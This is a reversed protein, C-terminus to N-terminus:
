KLLTKPHLSDLANIYDKVGIWHLFDKLWGNYTQFHDANLKGESFLTPIKEGFATLKEVVVNMTSTDNPNYIMRAVLPRIEQLLFESIVLM